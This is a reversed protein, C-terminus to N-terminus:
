KPQGTTLTKSNVTPTITAPTGSFSASTIGTLVTVDGTTPLSGKSWSSILSSPEESYTLSPLAGASWDSIASASVESYTLSPATGVGTIQYASANTLGTYADATSSVKVGTLAKGSSSVSAGGHTHYLYKTTFSINGSTIGTVASATGDPGVGTAANFNTGSNESTTLATSSGYSHTHANPAVTATSATGLSAATHTHSLYKTTPTISGGSFSGYGTVAAIASGSNATTTLATSSGYGHTHSNAAASVATFTLVGDTVSAKHASVATATTAATTGSVKVTHTHGNPAANATSPTGLSAATHTVSEVYKHAGTSTTSASTLSGSGGSFSSYGTVVKVGDGTNVGTDGNVTVTHTHGGPAASKSNTIKVGKLVTATGSPTAGGGSIATVFPIRGSTAKTDATTATDSSYVVLDGSGGSIGKVFTDTGDPAVETAVATTTGGSVYSFSARTPVSGASWKTIKHATAAAYTLSPLTGTSWETIKSPATTTYSLSPLTGAKTIETVTDTSPTVTVSGAPTYSAGTVTHTHSADHTHTSTAAGIGGVSAWTGDGRLVKANDGAKPAPVLGSTGAASASAGSMVDVNNQVVTWHANNASTGDAICIIMDGVSCKQGAYTGAEIVKYSWGQYHTDPLASVTAGSSGITGKFVLADNARIGDGIATWVAKSTPITNDTSSASPAVDTSVRGNFLEADINYVTDGIKVQRIPALTTDVTYDAM